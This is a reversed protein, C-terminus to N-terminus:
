RKAAKLTSLYAILDARNKAVAIGGFAMKTGPVLGSPRTLFADLKAPTWVIESKTLAPSYTYGPHSASKAGVAGSLNPGIGNRDGPAVTHCARCQLFIRQGQAPDGGATAVQPVMLAAALPVIAILRM